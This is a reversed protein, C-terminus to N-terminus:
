RPQTPTMGAWGSCGHVCADGRALIHGDGDFVTVGIRDMTPMEKSPAGWDLRDAFTWALTPGSATAVSSPTTQDREFLTAVYKQARGVATVGVEYSIECEKIFQWERGPQGLRLDGTCPGGDWTVAPPAPPPEDLTNTSTSVFLWRAKRTETVSVALPLPDIWVGLRSTVSRTVASVSTNGLYRAEVVGGDSIQAGRQIETANESEWTLGRRGDLPSGSMDVLTAQLPVVDGTFLSLKPPSIDIRALACGRYASVMADQIRGRIPEPSLYSEVAGHLRLAWRIQAGGLLGAVRARLSGSVSQTASDSMPTRVRPFNNHGLTLIVDGEVALGNLHRAAIPWAESTPSALAVGGICTTDRSQQYQGRSALLRLAQQVILNGQSHMVFVVHQGDQRLKHTFAAISDVDRPRTTISRNLVAGFQKGVEAYDAFLALARPETSNLCRAVEAPLSNIGLWDGKIGLELVCREELSTESAMASRNYMLRVDYPVNADWHADRAARAVHHAAFLAGLPTTLIGNVYAITVPESDQTYSTEHKLTAAGLIDPAVKRPTMISPSPRLLTPASTGLPVMVSSLTVEGGHGGDDDSGPDRNARGDGAHFSHGAMAEELAPLSEADVDRQLIMMEVRRLRNSIGATDSMQELRDLLQQASKTKNGSRLLARADRLIWEDGAAVSAIRDASAILVRSDDMTIRGRKSIASQDLTVLPNRYGSDAAFEYAVREGRRFTYTDTVMNGHVGADAIVTLTVRPMFIQFRVNLWNRETIFAFRATDGPPAAYEGDVLRLDTYGVITDGLTVVIRYGVAPDPAVDKLKWRFAYARDTLSIGNLSDSATSDHRFRAVTDAGCTDGTLRCISVSPALTTDLIGRPHRKPGLPALFITEPAGDDGPANIIESVHSGPPTPATATDSCGHQAAALVTVVCLLMIRACARLSKM